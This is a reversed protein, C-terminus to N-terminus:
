KYDRIRAKKRLKELAKNIEFDSMGELLITKDTGASAGILGGGVAGIIFGFFIGGLITKKEAALSSLIIPAPKEILAGVIAGIGGGTLSGFTAGVWFQSKKVIRIVKIEEIDVSVDKGEADLLLLSNPKVTILEGQVQQGDKKTVVLKAGRREKAYLNASLMVLSFVLFLSIFKKSTPNM